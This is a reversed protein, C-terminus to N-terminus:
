SGRSRRAVTPQPQSKPRLAVELHLAQAAACRAARLQLAVITITFSAFAVGNVRTCTAADRKRGPAPNESREDPKVRKPRRGALLRRLQRIEEGRAALDAVLVAVDEVATVRLEEGAVHERARAQQQIRPFQADVSRSTARAPAAFRRAGGRRVRPRPSPRTSASPWLVPSHAPRDPAAAAFSGVEVEERRRAPARCGRARVLVADHADRM